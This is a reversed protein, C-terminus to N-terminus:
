CITPYVNTVTTESIGLERQSVWNYQPFLQQHLRKGKNYTVLNSPSYIPFWVSTGGLYVPEPQYGTGSLRVRVAADYSEVKEFFNWATQIELLQSVIYRPGCSAPYSQRPWITGIGNYIDFNECAM